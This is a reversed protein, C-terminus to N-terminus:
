LYLFIAGLLHQFLPRKIKEFRWIKSGFHSYMVPQLWHNKQSCIKNNIQYYFKIKRFKEILTFKVLKTLSKSIKELIKIDFIQFIFIFIFGPQLTHQPWLWVTIAYILGNSIWSLWCSNKLSNRLRNLQVHVLATLTVGATLPQYPIRFILITYLFTLAYQNPKAFHNQGLMKACRTQQPHHFSCCVMVHATSQSSLKPEDLHTAILLRGGIQLETEQTYNSFLLYGLM